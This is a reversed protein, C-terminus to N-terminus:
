NETYVFEPLEGQALSARTESVRIKFYELLLIDRMVCQFAKEPDVDKEKALQEVIDQLSRVSENLHEDKQFENFLFEAQKRLNDNNLYNM